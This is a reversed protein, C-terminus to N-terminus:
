PTQFNAIAIASGDSWLLYFTFQTAAPLTLYSDGAGSTVQTVVFNDGGSLIQEGGIDTWNVRYFSAGVTLVVFSGGTTPMADPVGMVSGVVLDVKYNAPGYGQSASAVSIQEGIGNPAPVGFTVLPQSPTEWSVSAIQTGDSWLLYFTMSTGSPWTGNAISVMYLDGANLTGEGGIDTWDIGYYNFGVQVYVRYSWGDGLPADTAVGTEGGVSLSVRYNSPSLASSAAAIAFQEGGSVATPPAFTVVPRTPPPNIVFGPAFALYVLAGLAVPILIILVAVLVPATNDKRPPLPYYPYPM